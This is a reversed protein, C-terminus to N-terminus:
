KYDLELLAQRLSVSINTDASIVFMEVSKLAFMWLTLNEEINQSFSYQFEGNAFRREVSEKSSHILNLLVDFQIRTNPKIVYLIHSDPLVVKKEYFFLGKTIMKYWQNIVETSEDNVQFVLRKEYIGAPNLLWIDQMAQQLLRKLKLNKALTKPIRNELVKRSSEKGDGFQFLTGTFDELRQKERNCKGCSPVIPLGSRYIEEPPFFQKALVHDKEM